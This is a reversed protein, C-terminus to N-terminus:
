LGGRTPQPGGPTKPLAEILMKITDNASEANRLQDLYNRTAVIQLKLNAEEDPTLGGEAQRQVLAPVIQEEIEKPSLSGLVSLDAPGPANPPPPRGQMFGADRLLVGAIRRPALADPPTGEAIAGRIQEDYAAKLRVVMRRETDSANWFAFFQQTPDDGVAGLVVQEILDRGAEVEADRMVGGQRRSTANTSLLQRGQEADYAGLQMASYVEEPSLMGFEAQTRHDDYVFVDPNNELEGDRVSQLFNFASPALDGRAVSLQLEQDTVNSDEAIRGMYSQMTSLQHKERAERMLIDNRRSQQWAKDIASEEMQTALRALDARADLPLDPHQSEDLISARAAQLAGVNGVASEVIATARRKAGDSVTALLLADADGPTVLPNVQAAQQLQGHLEARIGIYDTQTRAGALRQAYAAALAKVDDAGEQASRRSIANLTSLKSRAGIVKLEDGFEPVGADAASRELREVIGPFKEEWIAHAQSATGASDVENELAGLQEIAQLHLKTKLAHREQRILHDAVALGSQSLANGFDVLPSKLAPLTPLPAVNRQRPLSIVPAPGRPPTPGPIRPM